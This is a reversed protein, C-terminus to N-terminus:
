VVSKRDVWDINGRWEAPYGKGGNAEAYRKTAEATLPPIRGDPPDFVMYPRPAAPAKNNDNNKKAKAKGKGPIPKQLGMMEVTPWYGQFDPDGWSTKPVTYAKAPASAKAAPRAAPASSPAQAVLLAALALISIVAISSFVLRRM